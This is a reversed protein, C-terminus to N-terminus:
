GKAFISFLIFFPSKLTDNLNWLDECVALAESFEGTWNYYQILYSFCWARGELSEVDESLDLSDLLLPRAEKLRGLVSYVFGLFSTAKLLTESLAQERSKRIAKQLRDVATRPHHTYFTIWGLRFLAEAEDDKLEKAKSHMRHFTSLSKDMEGACSLMGGKWKYIQLVNEQEANLGARRIIDLARDYCIVAEQCAFAYRARNGAELTYVLAKSWDESHYFHYALFGARSALDDQYIQEMAEGTLRHLAKRNRRLMGRYAIEQMMQHRFRYKGDVDVSARIIGEKELFKLYQKLHAEEGSLRKLLEYSFEFGIISALQTVRKAPGPLADLRATLVGRITEPIEFDEINLTLNCVNADCVMLKRRRITEAMEVLFLPNGAAQSLIKHSTEQDLLQTGLVSHFIDRSADDPLPSLHLFREPSDPCWVKQSMRGSCVVFLPGTSEERLLFFLFDRSTPDVWQMDDFILVLPRIKLMAVSISRLSHFIRRKKGESSIDDGHENESQSFLDLIDEIRRTLSTGKFRERVRKKGDSFRENPRMEFFSRFMETVPYFAMAEGFPRCQGEFVFAEQDRIVDRFATLLRTKGSGPEGTVAIMRPTGQLASRFVREMVGLEDERNVFPIRRDTGARVLHIHKRAGLLSFALIPDEKGKM